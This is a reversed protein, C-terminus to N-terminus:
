INQYKLAEKATNVLYQMAQLPYKGVATEGTLMLSSAGDLVANFIDSVEARTPVASNQMSDLMQTVVMFPKKNQRCIQAIQKQIGPLCPLSVDNGLDGRAIVIHDCYPLLETLVNVGTRNELKAFIQIEEAAFEALANKLTLLDEKSRVFPLMVGTVGYEKALSLNFYDEKTLAPTVIQSGPIAISKRSSLIGGRIIQCRASNKKAQLVILEIKGDDLIVTTNKKLYSFIIEPVSLGGEGLIFQQGCCLSLPSPLMGIRLEPGILDILLKCSVGQNKVATQLHQVWAQSQKLSAHSLNLRIGTMGAQLLASLTTVEQCNPGLTAYFDLM